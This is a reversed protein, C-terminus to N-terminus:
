SCPRPPFMKKSSHKNVNARGQVAQAQKLTQKKTGRILIFFLYFLVTKYRSSGGIAVHGKLSSFLTACANCFIHGQSM